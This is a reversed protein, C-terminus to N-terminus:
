PPSPTRELRFVQVFNGNSRAAQAVLQAGPVGSESWSRLYPVQDLDQKHLVVHTVRKKALYKLATQEDSYPLWVFEAKAHFSFPTQTDAIRLHDSGTAMRTSVAKIPRSGRAGLMDKTAFLAAPIMVAALALAVALRAVPTTSREESSFTLRAWRAVTFLGASAWICFAALFLVYFRLALFYIFFLALVSFSLVILVHSQDILTRLRLPRGFFGLVALAFLAPSGFEISGGITAAASRLVDLSQKPFIRIYDMVSPRHGRIIDINPQVWVGEAVLEPGVAFSAAYSPLGQQIRLETAVNLASKTQLTLHGTQLSLWFVYPATVLGFCVLIFGARRVDRAVTPELSTRNALARQLLFFAIGVLMFIAAEPRILYALGYLFGAAAVARLDPRDPAIMVIFIAALIVTLYTPECFVTTSFNVLFPHVAVIAAAGLGHVTGLMRKAIGYVPLVLLAGFLVNVTRGAMEVDCGLMSVGAILLPFLPPFFLQVGETAIGVYGTGLRINEAIRAYEAGETDIEGSFLMACLARLALAIALIVLLVRREHSVAPIVLQRRRGYRSTM